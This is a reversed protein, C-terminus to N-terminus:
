AACSSPKKASPPTSRPIWAGPADVSAGFSSAGAAGIERDEVDVVEPDGALLADVHDAHQRDHLPRQGRHDGAVALLDALGRSRSPLVTPTM